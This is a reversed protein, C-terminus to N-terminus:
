RGTSRGGDPAWGKPSIAFRAASLASLASVELGESIAAKEVVARRPPFRRFSASVGQVSQHHRMKLYGCSLSLHSYDLPNSRSRELM